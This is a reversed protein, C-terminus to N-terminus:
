ARPKVLPTRATRRVWELAEAFMGFALTAVACALATAVAAREVTPPLAALV